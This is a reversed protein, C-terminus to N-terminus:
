NEDLIKVFRELVETSLSQWYDRDVARMRDALRDHKWRRRLEDTMPQATVTYWQDGPRCGNKKFREGNKLIVLTKTLRAVRTVRSIQDHHFVAVEQGVQWEIDNYSM